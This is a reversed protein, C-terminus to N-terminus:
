SKTPSNLEEIRAKTKKIEDRTDRITSIDRLFQLKTELAMLEKNMM